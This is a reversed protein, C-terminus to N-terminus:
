RARVMKEDVDKYGFIPPRGCYEQGVAFILDAEDLRSLEVLVRRMYAVVCAVKAWDIEKGDPGTPSAKWINRWVAAGLVADGKALGEDYAALVGRWQIFLDKLYKNRISRSSLGHLVAMRHEANHSFHDFLHRSHTRVSEASPLARLRVTLLYMHLFTVQSWTSFTPLLGLNNYWWGEGVGLDEGSATKPIEAGKQAAQPIRYDAQASCAEFLKQTLGYSVYTETTNRSRSVLSQAIRSNFRSTQSYARRLTLFSHLSDCQWRSISVPHSPRLKSESSSKPFTAPAFDSFTRSAVRFSRSGTFQRVEEYGLERAQYERIVELKDFDIYVRTDRLRFVVNDLRMFFRSLLLLREPMVRIKCSLMSVGNDALEDEYLMVDDFFLIPDPRKLLEIPIPVTSPEFQKATPYLTGKYDTSYSWDFPRVIEKIGEHTNERSKQWEKSYAVQLRTAGTKDVRDLADFANFTIGWGSAAHEITVFNDGFIMEPPTIGLKNTMVEIPGAKLIPLKQTTIKFGKRSFSNPKAATQADRPGSVSTSIGNTAM